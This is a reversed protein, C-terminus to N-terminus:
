QNSMNKLKEKTRKLRMAVSAASFGMIDAIEQYTKEELWLLIISREIKNLKYILLYLEQIETNKTDQEFVIHESFLLPVNQRLKANRRLDSICTNLAIRYIWTSTQSENRFNPYAKWLNLVMEQYLDELPSIESVYFTCVNYIVREYQKILSIFEQELINKNQM